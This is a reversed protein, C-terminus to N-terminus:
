TDGEEFLYTFVAKQVLIRVTKGHTELIDRVTFDHIGHIDLEDRTPISEKELLTHFAEIPLRDCLADISRTWAWKEQESAM